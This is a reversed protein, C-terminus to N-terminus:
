KGSEAAVPKDSPVDKYAYQGVGYKKAIDHALQLNGHDEEEPETERTENKFHKLWSEPLHTPMEPLEGIQTVAFSEEKLFDRRIEERTPYKVLNIWNRPPYMEGDPRGLILWKPWYEKEVIVWCKLKQWQLRLQLGFLLMKSPILWVLHVDTGRLEPETMYEPRFWRQELQTWLDLCKQVTISAGGASFIREARHRTAPDDRIKSWDASIPTLHSAIIYLDNVETWIYVGAVICLANRINRSSREAFFNSYPNVNDLRARRSFPIHKDQQM